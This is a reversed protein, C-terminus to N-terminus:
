IKRMVSDYLRPNVVSLTSMLEDMLLWMERSDRGSIADLFETDGYRPVTRDAEETGAAAGSYGGLFDDKGSDEPYMHDLVTYIAALKECNQITHRGETLENIADVLEAKSFM